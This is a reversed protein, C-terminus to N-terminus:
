DRVPKLWTAIYTEGGITYAVTVFNEDDLITEIEITVNLEDAM